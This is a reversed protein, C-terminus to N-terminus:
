WDVKQGERVSDSPILWKGDSSIYLEVGDECSSKELRWKIIGYKKGSVTVIVKDSRQDVETIDGFHIKKILSLFGM